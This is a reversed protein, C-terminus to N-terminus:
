IEFGDTGVVEGNKVYVEFATAELMDATYDNASKFDFEFQGFFGDEETPSYKAIIRSYHYTISLLRLGELIKQDDRDEFQEGKFWPIFRERIIKEIGENQLCAFDEGVHKLSEEDEEVEVAVGDYEYVSVSYGSSLEEGNHRKFKDFLGM